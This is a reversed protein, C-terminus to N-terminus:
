RAPFRIEAKAGAGPSGTMVLSAGAGFIESLRRRTNTLGIGERAAPALGAGDDAVEIYVVGDTVRAAVSLTFRTVDRTLGHQLANEVLPQLIMPPVLAALAAPTADYRVCLREGLRIRHIDLYARVDELERDLPVLDRDSDELSRRLLRGLKVVMADAADPDVHITESIAHLTNFLFHPRLQSRLALLRAASLQGELRAAHLERDRLRREYMLVHGLTAIVAYAFLNPTLWNLTTSVLSPGALRELILQGMGNMVLAALGSLVLGVVVHIALHWPRGSRSVPFRRAMWLAVPTMALMLGGDAFSFFVRNGFTMGDDRGALHLLNTQIIRFVIYTGWVGLILTVLARRDARRREAEAPTTVPGPDPAARGMSIGPPSEMPTALM